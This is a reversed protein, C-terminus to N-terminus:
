RVPFSIVFFRVNPRYEAPLARPEPYTSQLLRELWDHCINVPPKLTAFRPCRGGPSFHFFTLPRLVIARLNYQLRRAQPPYPLKRVRRTVLVHESRPSLASIPRKPRDARHM